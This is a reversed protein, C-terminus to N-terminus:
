CKYAVVYRWFRPLRQPFFSKKILFTKFHKIDKAHKGINMEWFFASKSHKIVYHYRRITHVFIKIIIKYCTNVSVNEGQCKSALPEIRSIIRGLPKSRSRGFRVLVENVASCSYLSSISNWRHWYTTPRSRVSSARCSLRDSVWTCVWICMDVCVFVIVFVCFM